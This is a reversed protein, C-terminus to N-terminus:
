DEVIRTGAIKDGLRRGDTDTLVLVLETITLGLTALGLFPLLMIGVITYILFPQLLGLAFMWNRKVSTMLDPSSGDVSVLRLKMVHKGVSRHNMFDFEMGDRLLIYAAGVLSGIAPIVMWIVFAIASDILVAVMRKGIDAKTGSATAVGPSTFPDPQAFPDQLNSAGQNTISTLQSSKVRPEQADSDTM